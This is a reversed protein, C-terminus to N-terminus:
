YLDESFLVDKPGLVQEAAIAIRAAEERDVFRGRSTVFGQRDGNRDRRTGIDCDVLHALITDHRLGWVVYGAPVPQGAHPRKDDVWIAACLVREPRPSRAPADPGTRPPTDPLALLLADSRDIQVDPLLTAVTTALCRLDDVFMTGRHLARGQPSSWWWRCDQHLFRGLVLRPTRRHKFPRLHGAPRWACLYALARRYIERVSDHAAVVRIQPNALLHRVLLDVDQHMCLRVLAAPHVLETAGPYPQRWLRSPDPHNHVVVVRHWHIPPVPNVIVGPDRWAPSFPTHVTPMATPVSDM